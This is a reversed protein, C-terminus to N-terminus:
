SVVSNYTMTEKIQSAVTYILLCPKCNSVSRCELSFCGTSPFPFTENEPEWLVTLPPHKRQQPDSLLGRRWSPLSSDAKSLSPQTLSVRLTKWCLPAFSGRSYGCGNPFHWPLRLAPTAGSSWTVPRQTSPQHSPRESSSLAGQFGRGSNPFM